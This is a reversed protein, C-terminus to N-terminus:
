ATAPPSDSVEAGLKMLQLARPDAPVRGSRGMGERLRERAARLGLRARLRKFRSRKVRRHGIFYYLAAGGFPLAAVLVIWALTALPTRKELAIWSALLVVLVVQTVTIATPLM